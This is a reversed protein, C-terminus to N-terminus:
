NLRKVDIRLILRTDDDVKYAESIRRGVVYMVHHGDCVLPVRDRLYSPIKEDIMYRGISKKSGKNNIVIYDEKQRNRICVGDIIKDYDLLKTYNNPEIKTESKRTQLEFNLGVEELEVYTNDGVKSLQLLKDVKSTKKQSDHARLLEIYEYDARVVINYPLNAVRGSSGKLMDLLIAVHIGAIDKKLGAFECLFMYAVNKTIILEENLINKSLKNGDIYKDYAKKTQANIYDCAERLTDTLGSIHEVARPNIERLKPIIGHRINNRTYKSDENTSDVRYPQKQASLYKVIDSRNCGLLPRIYKGRKKSIGTLGEIGSGRIMNFIVTEADDEMNHAIAIKGDYREFIDYRLERAAEELSLGKKEAYEVAKVPHLHLKINLSECLEEVFGADELSEEGRIGHEVHIAELEFGMEAKLNNLVILLCVSDAGGSVAAYVRDGSEIMKNDTITDKVNSIM